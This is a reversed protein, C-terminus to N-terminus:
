HNNSKRCYNLIPEPVWKMVYYESADLYEAQQLDNCIKALEDAPISILDELVLPTEM